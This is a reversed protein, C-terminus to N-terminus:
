TTPVFLPNKHIVAADIKAGFIASLDTERELARVMEELKCYSIRRRPAPQQSPSGTPSNGLTQCSTM